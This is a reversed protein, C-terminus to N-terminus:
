YDMATVCIHYHKDKLDRIRGLMQSCTEANCSSPDFLGYMCDFHAREFSVGATLTPTYILMDLSGFSTDVNNFDEKDGVDKTYLGINKTPFQKKVYEYLQKAKRCSTSALAIKKGQAL